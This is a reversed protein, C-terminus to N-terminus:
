ARPAATQLLSEVLRSAADTRARFSGTLITYPRGLVELEAQLRATHERRRRELVRMGDSVWPVDANLLLTLAYRQDPTSEALWHPRADVIMDSWTCTTALDTDCFLLRNATSAAATEAQLQGRGIADFDDLTLTLADRTICYERGFEPVWVTQFREALHAALTTKGTSEAGVIAVRRVFYPRVVPPLFEWLGMPDRRIASGSVPFTTRDLDVSTHAAGIRRGLEEGYRESSFVHDVQGAHRQILDVWIEWFRPDDEPAQPVEEAVHVVRCDPHSEAVWQHRLVGDIPEREISCVLVTLCDVAARASRILYAHGAHYPLFKGLVLGHTMRGNQLPSIHTCAM